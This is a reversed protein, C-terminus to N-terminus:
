RRGIDTSIPTAYREVRGLEFRPALVGVSELGLHDAISSRPHLFLGNGEPGALRHRHIEPSEIRNAGRPSSCFLNPPVPTEGTWVPPVGAGGIPPLESATERQAFGCAATNDWWSRGSAVALTGVARVATGYRRPHRRGDHGGPGPKARRSLRKARWDCIGLFPLSVFDRGMEKGPPVFTTVVPCANAEDALPPLGLERLQQRVFTGLAAYHQYRTQALEPSAYETLAACPTSSRRPSPSARAKSPWRRPWTSIVQCGARDTRPLTRADAFIIAMGAYAGLSKGTAATALFVDHLDTPVAGLSSICDMCVRIGRPRACRVLGPLDNLVGTSSELHVGWVWSDPPERDLAANVEDLNWPSGWPWSLVRPRLGFRAAQAALRQGFEGNVLIVGHTDPRPRAQVEAALTAAVAENGLTGSGNLLAVDRCNVMGALMRRTREFRSHIRPRSSLHAARRFADQVAAGRYRPRALLCVPPQEAEEPSTDDASQTVRQVRRAWLNRLKKLKDEMASVGACMPVFSAAGDGVAPGIAEFGLRQYLECGNASVPFICSRSARARAHQYFMYLMGMVVIGNRETPEVALLRVELPRRGPRQLIAPDSLRSAISFPPQGHVSVMGVVRDERLAIFYVSKEHFKDVLLGTGADPHQPIEEVFTRYNLRHIQEFEESADARKFVYRGVRLM